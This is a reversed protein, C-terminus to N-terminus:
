SQQSPPLECPARKEPIAAREPVAAAGGSILGKLATADVGAQEIKAM